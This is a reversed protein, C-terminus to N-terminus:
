IIDHGLMAIYCNPMYLTGDKVSALAAPPIRDNIQNRMMFRELVGSMM